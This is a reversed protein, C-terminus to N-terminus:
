IASPMIRCRPSLTKSTRLAPVLGDVTLAQNKSTAATERTAESDEKPLKPYIIIGLIVLVIVTYLIRKGTKNM